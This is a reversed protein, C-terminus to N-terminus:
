KKYAERFMDVILGGVSYVILIMMVLFSFLCFPDVTM